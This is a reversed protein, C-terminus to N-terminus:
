SPAALTLLMCMGILFGAVLGTVVIWVVIESATIFPRRRWHRPTSM